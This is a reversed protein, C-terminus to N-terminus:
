SKYFPVTSVGIMVNEGLKEVIRERVRSVVKEADNVRLEPDVGIAMDFIFFHGNKRAKLSKICDVGETDSVIESVMDTIEQNCSHDMLELFAPYLMRISAVVILVVLILSAVPDLIRWKEGLFHAFFVGILTAISALADSRHHWANTLLATTGTKRAGARYYRFLFEKSFMSVVVIVVTWIDPQALISGEAYEKISEIAEMTIHVAVVLLFISILFTSFTEYKGYGYSYNRDAKRFSIGIFMLMILDAAFDNLSHYGDAMLADSHGYYGVVLKLCMLIANVICGVIVIHRIRRSNETSKSSLLTGLQNKFDHHGM